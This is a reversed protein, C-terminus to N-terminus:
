KKKIIFPVLHVLHFATDAIHKSSGITCRNKNYLMQQNKKLTTAHPYYGLIQTSTLINLKFKDAINETNKILM